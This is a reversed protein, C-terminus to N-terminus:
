VHVRVIVHHGVIIAVVPTVFADFDPVVHHVYTVVVGQSEVVQGSALYPDGYPGHHGHPNGDPVLYEVVVARTATVITNVYSSIIIQYYEIIGAVVVAIAPDVIVIAIICDDLVVGAVAIAVPPNFCVARLAERHLVVCAVVIDVSQGQREHISIGELNGVICAM